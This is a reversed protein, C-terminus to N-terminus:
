HTVMWELSGGSCYNTTHDDHLWVNPTFNLKLGFKTIQGTLLIWNCISFCKIQVHMHCAYPLLNCLSSALQKNDLNSDCSPLSKWSAICGQQTCIINGTYTPKLKFGNINTVCTDVSLFPLTNRSCGLHCCCLLSYEKLQKDVHLELINISQELSNTFSINDLAEARKWLLRLIETTRETSLSGSM